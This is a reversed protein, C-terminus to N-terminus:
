PAAPLPPVYDPAGFGPESTKPLTKVYALVKWIKENGLLAAWAAMGGPRGESVTAFLDADTAGYKWYPDVLSPGVLGRGDAMHCAICITSFVERGEAIAAANGTYPNTAPQSARVVAAQSEAAAVESRWQGTSSWNSIALYWVMYAIGFITTAIWSVNFWFPIPNDEEGIGDRLHGPGPLEPIELLSDSM